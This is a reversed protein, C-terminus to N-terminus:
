LSNLMSFFPPKSKWCVPLPDNSITADVLLNLNDTKANSNKPKPLIINYQDLIEPINKIFKKSQELHTLALDIQRSYEDDDKTNSDSYPNPLRNFLLNNSPSICIKPKRKKFAIIIKSDNLIGHFKLSLFGNIANENYIFIPISNNPITIDAMEIISFLHDYENVLLKKQEATSGSVIVTLSLM